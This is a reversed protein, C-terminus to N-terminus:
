TSAKHSLCCKFPLPQANGCHRPHWVIHVKSKFQYYRNSLFLEKECVFADSPLSSLLYVSLCFKLILSLQVVSLCPCFHFKTSLAKVVSACQLFGFFLKSAIDAMDQQRSREKFEANLDDTVKIDQFMRGLKNVFDAPMGADQFPWHLM